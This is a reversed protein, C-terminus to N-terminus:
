LCHPWECVLNDYAQRLLSKDEEARRLSVHLAQREVAAQAEHSKM